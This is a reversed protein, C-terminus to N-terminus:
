VSVRFAMGAAEVALVVSEKRATDCRRDLEPKLRKLLSSVVGVEQALLGAQRLNQFHTHLMNAVMQGIQAAFMVSTALDVINAAFDVLWLDAVPLM